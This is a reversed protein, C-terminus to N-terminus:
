LYIEGIYTIGSDNIITISFGSIVGLYVGQQLELTSVFYTGTEGDIGEITMKWISDEPLDITFVGVEDYTGVIKNFAPARLPKNSRNKLVIAIQQPTTNSPSTPTSTEAWISVGLLSLLLILLEIRKM